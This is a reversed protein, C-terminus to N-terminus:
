VYYRAKDGVAVLYDAKGVIAEGSTRHEVRAYRGLEFIDGLVAWRKGGPPVETAQMAEIIAIISQRNANYTDDILISGNPGSKIEGRGKAPVLLELGDCIEELSMNAACGAAAAALAIM